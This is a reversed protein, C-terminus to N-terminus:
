ENCDASLVVLGETKAYFIGPRENLYVTWDKVEYNIWKLVLNNDRLVTSITCNISATIESALVMIKLM